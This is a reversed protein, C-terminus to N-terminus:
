RIGLMVLIDEDIDTSALKVMVYQVSVYLELVEIKGTFLYSIKFIYTVRLVVFLFKKEIYIDTFFVVFKLLGFLLVNESSGQDIEKNKLNSVIMPLISFKNNQSSQAYSATAVLFSPIFMYFVRTKIKNNQTKQANRAVGVLVM